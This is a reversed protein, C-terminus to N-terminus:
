GGIQRGTAVSYSAGQAPLIRKVEPVLFLEPHKSHIPMFFKPEIEQVIRVLDEPTAHGSCGAWRLPIDFRELWRQLVAWNPDFPGLPEGNSHIFVSDAGPSLDVLDPLMALEMQLLVERQSARVRQTNWLSGAQVASQVLWPPAGDQDLLAEEDPRLYLGVQTLDGGMAAWLAATAPRLLPLRGMGTVAHVIGALRETNRPYLAIMALDRHEHLIEAVREPVDAEGRQRPPPDGTARRSSPRGRPAEEREDPPFFRTGEILLIKPQLAKAETIFQEVWDTHLGHYRLDGTYVVVGEPTEILLGCAGPIDHDINLARFRLPGHEIVEGPPLPCAGAPLVPEAGTEVLAKLMRLSEPHLYTPVAPDLWPLAAIHDKHLHSLWLLTQGDPPALGAAAAWDAPYIGDLHPLDHTALLDRLGAAAARPRVADSWFTGGPEYVLGWDFLLRFGGSEVTIKTGGIQGVGDWIKLRTATM